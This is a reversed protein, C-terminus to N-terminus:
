RKRYNRRFAVLHGIVTVEKNFRYTSLLKAKSYPCAKRISYTDVCSHNVVFRLYTQDEFKILTPIGDKLLSSKRILCVDGRIIDAKEMTDDPMIYVYDANIGSALSGFSDASQSAVLEGNDLIQPLFRVPVPETDSFAPSMLDLANVNLLKAIKAVNDPRPTKSGAVWCRATNYSVGCFEALDKKSIGADAM